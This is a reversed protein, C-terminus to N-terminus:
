SPFLVFSFMFLINVPIWLAWCYINKNFRFWCHSYLKVATIESSLVFYSYLYLKILLPPSYLPFFRLLINFQPPQVVAVIYYGFRIGSSLLPKMFWVVDYLGIEFTIWKNLTELSPGTMSGTLITPWHNFWHALQVAHSLRYTYGL